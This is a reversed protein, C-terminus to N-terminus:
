TSHSTRKREGDRFATGMSHNPYPHRDCQDYRVPAARLARGVANVLGTPEQRELGIRRADRLSARELPRAAEM